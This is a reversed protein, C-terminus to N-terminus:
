ALGREHAIYLDCATWLLIWTQVSGVVWSEYVGYGICRQCFCLASIICLYVVDMSLYTRTLPCTRVLGLLHHAWPGYRVCREHVFMYVAYSRTHVLESLIQAPSACRVCRERVFMYAHMMLRKLELPPLSVIVLINPAQSISPDDVIMFFSYVNSM